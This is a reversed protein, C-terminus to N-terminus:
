EQRYAFINLQLDTDPFEPNSKNIFPSKRNEESKIFYRFNNKELVSIISDLKQPHNIFSHFEIFINDVKYLIDTCDPIVNIEAGEIDMKLFHIHEENEILDRLRVSDVKIKKNSGYVSGADAGNLSFEIGDNNIWVAKSIIETGDIGNRKLNGRLIGAISGDAEFAKIRANKYLSKFYLVSIGINAGCDYIVPTESESNFRYYEKVFIEKYQFIFSLCDPVTVHYNLFNIERTENRKIKGYKFLLKLFVRYKYDHLFLAVNEFKKNFIKM